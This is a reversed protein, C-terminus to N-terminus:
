DLVLFCGVDEEVSYKGFLHTEAMYQRRYGCAMESSDKVRVDEYGAEVNVIDEVRVDEYEVEVKVSDETRVDENEAEVNVFYDKLYTM